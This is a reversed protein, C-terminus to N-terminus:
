LNPDIQAAAWIAQQIDELSFSFEPNGTLANGEEYQSVDHGAKILDIIHSITPDSYAKGLAEQNYGAMISAADPQPTTIVGALMNQIGSPMNAWDYNQFGKIGHLAANMADMQGQRDAAAQAQRASAAAQAQQRTYDQMLANRKWQADAYAQDRQWQQEALLAQQEGSGINALLQELAAAAQNEQAFRDGALRDTAEVGLGSLAATRDAAATDGIASLREMTAQNSGIQSDMQGGMLAQVAAVEPRGGGGQSEAIEALRKERIAQSARMQNQRDTQRAEVQRRQAQRDEESKVLRGEALGMAEAIESERMGTAEAIADLRSQNATTASDRLGSFMDAIASEFSISPGQYNKIWSALDFGGYTPVTKDTKNFNYSAEALPHYTNGAADRNIREAEPSTIHGIGTSSIRALESQNWAADASAQDALMEEILRQRLEYDYGRSNAPPLTTTTTPPMTTGTAGYEYHNTEHAM